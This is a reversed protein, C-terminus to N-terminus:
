REEDSKAPFNNWLGEVMLVVTDRAYERWSLQEVYVGEWEKRFRYSWGSENYDVVGYNTSRGGIGLTRKCIAALENLDYPNDKYQSEIVARKWSEINAIQRFTEITRPHCKLIPLARNIQIKKKIEKPKEEEFFDFLSYQGEIAWVSM